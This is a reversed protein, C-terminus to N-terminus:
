MPDAVNLLDHAMDPVESLDDHERDDVRHDRLEAQHQVSDAPEGREYPRCGPDREGRKQEASVFKPRAHGGSSEGGVKPGARGEEAREADAHAIRELREQGRERQPM